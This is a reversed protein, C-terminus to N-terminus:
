LQSTKTKTAKMNLKAAEMWVQVELKCVKVELHFNTAELSQYTLEELM